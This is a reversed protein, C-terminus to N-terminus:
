DQRAFAIFIDAIVLWRILTTTYARVHITEISSPVQQNKRQPLGQPTLNLWVRSIM